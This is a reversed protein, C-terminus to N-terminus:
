IEFIKSLITRGNYVVNNNKCLINFFTYISADMFYLHIHRVIIDCVKTLPNYTDM